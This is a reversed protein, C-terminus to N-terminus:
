VGKLKMILLIRDGQNENLNFKKFLEIKKIEIIRSIREVEVESYRTNKAINKLHFVHYKENPLASPYYAKKISIAKKVAENSYTGDIKPNVDDFLKLAALYASPTATTSWLLLQTRKTQEWKQADKIFADYCFKVYGKNKFAENTASLGLYVCKRIENEINVDDWQVMFFCSLVKKIYGLYIHKCRQMERDLLDSTNLYSTKIIQHLEHKLIQNKDGENNYFYKVEMMTKDSERDM